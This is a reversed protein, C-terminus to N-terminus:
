RKEYKDTRPHFTKWSHWFEQYAQLRELKNGALPGEFCEGGSNWSSSTQYDKLMNKDVFFRLTDTKWVHFSVSDPELHILLPIKDLTDNLARETVLLNWDYARSQPGIAIGVVWSKDKWSLTDRYELHSEITGKDFGELDEYEKDYLSDPQLVTSSPYLDLWAKLSMQQSPLEELFNGKLPGVIAEGTVQRWWSKTSSDEFMANYHDM